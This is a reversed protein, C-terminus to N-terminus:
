NVGTDNVVSYCQEYQIESEHSEDPSVPCPERPADLGLRKASVCHSVFELNGMPGMLLNLAWAGPRPLRVASKM